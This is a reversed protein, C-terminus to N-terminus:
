SGQSASRLLEMVEGFDHYGQVSPLLAKRKLDAILLFPVGSINHKKLDARDFSARPLRKGDEPLPGSDIQVVEVQIQEAQLRELVAFMRRCHPCTSEFYMRVKFRSPDVPTQKKRPPRRQGTIEASLIQPEGVSNKAMYERMRAELRASLENKKAMLDFWNKINEDTPNRAVEMFPEPPTYDGERFFEKNNPDLYTKWAFDSKEEVKKLPVTEPVPKSKAGENWFDIKADFYQLEKASAAELGIFLAVAMVFSERMILQMM